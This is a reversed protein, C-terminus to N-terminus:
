LTDTRMADSGDLCNNIFAGVIDAVKHQHLFGELRM